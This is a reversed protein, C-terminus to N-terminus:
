PKWCYTFSKGELRKEKINKDTVCETHIVLNFTYKCKKLKREMCFSINPFEALADLQGSLDKSLFSKFFKAPRFNLRSAVNLRVFFYISEYPLLSITSIMRGAGTFHPLKRVASGYNVGLCFYNTNFVQSYYISWYHGTNDTPIQIGWRNHYCLFSCIYDFAEWWELLSVNRYILGLGQFCLSLRNNEDKPM